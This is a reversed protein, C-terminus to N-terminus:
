HCYLAQATLNWKDLLEDEMNDKVKVINKQEDMGKPQHEWNSITMMRLLDHICNPDGVFSTALQYM